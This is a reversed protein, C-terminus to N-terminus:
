ASVDLCITNLRYYLTDIFAGARVRPFLPAATTSVVQVHGSALGLWELLLIQEELGLADVDYLIVTGNIDAEPLTLREGPCWSIVPTALQGNLTDLVKRTAAAKGTLLVNARPMGMEVFEAHAMRALRANEAADTEGDSSGGWKSPGALIKATENM